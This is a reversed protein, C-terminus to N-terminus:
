EFNIFLPESVPSLEPPGGTCFGLSMLFRYLTLESSTGCIKEIPQPSWSGNPLPLGRHSYHTLSGSYTLRRSASRPFESNSM